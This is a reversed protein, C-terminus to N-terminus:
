IHNLDKKQWVSKLELLRYKEGHKFLIAPM